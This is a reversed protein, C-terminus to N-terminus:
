CTVSWYSAPKGRRLQVVLILICLQPDLGTPSPFVVRGYNNVPNISWCTPNMTVRLSTRGLSPQCGPLFCTSTVCYLTVCRPLDSCMNQNLTASTMYILAYIINSSSRGFLFRFNLGWSKDNRDNVISQRTMTLAKHM